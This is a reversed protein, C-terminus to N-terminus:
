ENTNLKEVACDTLELTLTDVGEHVPIQLRGDHAAVALRPTDLVIHQEVYDSAREDGLKYNLEM